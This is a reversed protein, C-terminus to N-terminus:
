RYKGGLRVRLCPEPLGGVLLLGDMASPRNSLGILPNGIASGSGAKLGPKVHRAARRDLVRTINEVRLPLPQVQVLGM